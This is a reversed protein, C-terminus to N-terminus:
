AERDPTAQSAGGATAASPVNARRTRRHLRRGLYAAIRCPTCDVCLAVDAM